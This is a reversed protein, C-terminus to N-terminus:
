PASSLNRLPPKCTACNGGQVNRTGKRTQDAQSQMTARYPQATARKAGQTSNHLPKCPQPMPCAQAPYPAPYATARNPSPAPCPKPSTGNPHGAGQPSTSPAPYKGLKALKGQAQAQMYAQLKTAYINATKTHVNGRQLSCYYNAGQTCIHKRNQKPCHKCNPAQSQTRNLTSM